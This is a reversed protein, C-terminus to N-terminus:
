VCLEFLEEQQQVVRIRKRERLREALPKAVLNSINDFPIEDKVLLEQHEKILPYLEPPIAGLPILDLEEILDRVDDLQSNSLVCGRCSEGKNLLKPFHKNYM